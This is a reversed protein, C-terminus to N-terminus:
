NSKNYGNKLKDFEENATKYLKVLNEEWITLAIDDAFQTIKNQKSCSFNKIDNVYISYLLPSLRSGQPIGHTIQQTDSIENNIYTKQQRNQLFNRLLDLCKGRIGITYLKNLLTTHCITDFAKKLDIFITLVNHNNDLKEYINDTLHRMADCTSHNKRFGFQEINILNYKELFKQIRTKLTEEIIKSLSPLLAIPRYNETNTKDGNKYLPIIKSM